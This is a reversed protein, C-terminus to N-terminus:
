GEVGFVSDQISFALGGVGFRPPTSTLLRNMSARFGFGSVWLEFGLVRLGLDSISLVLCWVRFGLGRMELGSVRFGLGQVSFM